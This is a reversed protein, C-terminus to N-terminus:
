EKIIITHIYGTDNYYPDYGFVCFYPFATTVDTYGSSLEIPSASCGKSDGHGYRLRQNNGGATILVGVKSHTPLPNKNGVGYEKYGSGPIYIRNTEFTPALFSRNSFPTWGNDNSLVELNDSKWGYWYLQSM